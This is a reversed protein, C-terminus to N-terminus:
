FTNWHSSNTTVKDRAKALVLSMDVVNRAKRLEGTSSAGLRMRPEHHSAADAIALGAVLVLAVTVTLALLVALM